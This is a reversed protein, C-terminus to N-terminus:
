KKEIKIVMFTYSKGKSVITQHPMGAPIVAMDGAAVKQMTGGVIRGGRTEGPRLEEGGEIRGGYLLTAEGDQVIFIDDLHAHIEPVGDVDRREEMFSYGGHDGLREAAMMTKTAGRVTPEKAKLVSPYSKLKAAPWYTFGSLKPVNQAPDQASAAALLFVLIWVCRSLRSM